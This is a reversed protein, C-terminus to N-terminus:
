TGGVVDQVPQWEIGGAVPLCARWVDNADHPVHWPDPYLAVVTFEAVCASPVFFRAVVM